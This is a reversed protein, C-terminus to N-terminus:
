QTFRSKDFMDKWDAEYVYRTAHGDFFVVNVSQKRHFTGISEGGNWQLCGDNLASPSPSGPIVYPNEETFFALGSPSPVTDMRLMRHTALVSANTDVGYNMSYSRVATRAMRKFVPCLFPNTVRLIPYLTGNTITNIQVYNNGYVWTTAYPLHENDNEFDQAATALQRLNNQCEVERARQMGASIAPLLLLVLIGIIAIVVLLEVLTFAKKM